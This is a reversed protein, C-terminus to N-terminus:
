DWAIDDATTIRAVEKGKGKGKGSGGENQGPGSAGAVSPIPPTDSLMCLLAPSQLNFLRLAGLQDALGDIEADSSETAQKATVVEELWDSGDENVGESAEPSLAVPSKKAATQVFDRFQHPAKPRRKTKGDYQTFVIILQTSRCNSYVWSIACVMSYYQMVKIQEIM